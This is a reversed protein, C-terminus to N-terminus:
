LDKNYVARYMYEAREWDEPWDIDTVRYSDVVYGRFTSFNGGGESNLIYDSSYFCFMAADHYAHELDQTRKLFDDQNAVSMDKTDENLRFAREIPTPFPTIALMAKARDTDLFTKYAKKLDNQDILPSTAYILCITDFNKGRSNYEEIVYKLTEMITTHDDALDPNRLFDPKLGNSEAVKAIADSDTSIHIKDFIGCNKAANTAHEIMPKGCFLRVNKDPIRKSGGRAPIIALTKTM